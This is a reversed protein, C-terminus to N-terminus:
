GPWTQRLYAILDAAEQDTMATAAVHTGGAVLAALQDDSDAPVASSMQMGEGSGDAEHCSQCARVYVPGGNSANGALALVQAPRGPDPAACGSLASLALGIAAVLVLSRRITM